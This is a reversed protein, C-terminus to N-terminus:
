IEMYQLHLLQNWNLFIVKKYNMLYIKKERAIPMFVDRSAVLVPSYTYGWNEFNANYMRVNRKRVNLIKRVLYLKTPPAVVHGGAVCALLSITNNSDHVPM